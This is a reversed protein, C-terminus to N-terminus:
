PSNAASLQEALSELEVRTVLWESITNGEDTKTQRTGVEISDPSPHKPDRFRYENVLLMNQLAFLDDDLVYLAWAVGSLKLGPSWDTVIM